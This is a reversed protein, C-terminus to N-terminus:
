LYMVGDGHAQSLLTPTNEFVDAFFPIMSLEIEDEDRIMEWWSGSELGGDHTNAPSTLKSKNRVGLADDEARRVYQRFKGYKYQLEESSTTRPHSLLPIPKYLPHSPPINEHKNTSPLADFAPLTGFIM